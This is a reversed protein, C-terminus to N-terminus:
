VDEIGEFCRGVVELLALVDMVEIEDLEEQEPDFVADTQDM